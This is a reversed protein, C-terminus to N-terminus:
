GAAGGALSVIRSDLSLWDEFLGPDDRPEDFWLAELRDVLAVLEQRERPPLRSEAVRSRLTPNPDSRALELWDFEVLLALTALQVRHAAELFRGEEGLARAERLALAHLRGPELASAGRDAVAAQRIRWRGYLFLVLAIGLAIGLWGVGGSVDGFFGFLGLLWGLRDLGAVLVEQLWVLAEILWDPTRDILREIARLWADTQEYWRTYADESLIERAAERAREDAVM